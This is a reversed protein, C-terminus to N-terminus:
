ASTLPQRRGDAAWADRVERLLRAVKRNGSPTWHFREFRKYDEAQLRTTGPIFAVGVKECIEALRRDPYHADFAGPDGSLTALRRRGSAELQNVNPITFIVLTAGVKRCLEAAEEVLFACASYCHDALPGPTCLQALFTMNDRELSHRWRGPRLHESVVEWAGTRPSRRVFPKRYQRWQPRLNDPLDNEPYVFWLVLKGALRDGLQRILLMEQVLDYGPCAVAKITLEPDVEAYSEGARAGYGYAFSDGVVVIESDELRRRGPWGAADTVIPYIDDRPISYHADLNERPKWGLVPDFQMLENRPALRPETLRAFRAVWASMVWFPLGLLLVPVTLLLGALAALLALVLRGM